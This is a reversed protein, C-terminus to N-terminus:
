RSVGSTGRWEKWITRLVRWGDPFTRLNSKGNLRLAEYSPIERVDLDTKLARLYLMTEVEFGDANLRLEPLIRKWFACYGYCLDSYRNRFLIRAVMTFGWNGCKRLASMDATGGGQIFRSGKALDAGAWLSGLFAPIEAPDNSGDADLMVIISGTAAEFGARLADGKGHGAQAVIRVAPWSKKILDATGDTSWGDVLLVEHVWTPVRSLVYPLNPAENLAPIVVSVRHDALVSPGDDSHRGSGLRSRVRRDASQVRAAGTDIELAEGDNVPPPSPQISM